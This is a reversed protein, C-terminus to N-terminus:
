TIIIREDPEPRKSQSTKKSYIKRTDEPSHGELKSNNEVDGPMPEGTKELRVAHYITLKEFTKEDPELIVDMKAGLYKEVIGFAGFEEKIGRLVATQLPENGELTERMLMYGEDMYDALFHVQQPMDKKFFHHRCIENKENFLVAGVSIHFPKEPLSYKYFNSM